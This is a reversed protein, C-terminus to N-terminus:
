ALWLSHLLARATPRTKLTHKRWCKQRHVMLLKKIASPAVTLIIASQALWLSHVPERATPRTKFTHLEQNHVTLLKCMPYSDLVPASVTPRTKFAHKLSQALM